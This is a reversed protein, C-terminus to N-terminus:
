VISDGIHYVSGLLQRGLGTGMARVLAPGVPQGLSYFGGM